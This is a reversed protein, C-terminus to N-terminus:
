RGPIEEVWPECWCDRSLVHEHEDALCIFDTDCVCPEDNNSM